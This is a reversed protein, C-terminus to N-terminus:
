GEGDYNPCLRVSQPKVTEGLDPGLKNNGEM